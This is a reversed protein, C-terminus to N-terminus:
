VMKVRQAGTQECTQQNSPLHTVSTDKDHRDHQHYFEHNANIILKPFIQSPQKILWGM